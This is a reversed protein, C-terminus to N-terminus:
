WASMPTAGCCRRWRPISSSATPAARTGSSWSRSTAARCDAGDHFLADANRAIAASQAEARARTESAQLGAIADRLISPDERLARRLIQVIEARQAETFGEARAPIAPLLLALALLGHRLRPM